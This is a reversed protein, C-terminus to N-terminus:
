LALAKQIYNTADRQTYLEPQKMVLCAKVSEGDTVFVDWAAEYCRVAEITLGNWQTEVGYMHPKDIRKFTLNMNLTEETGTM